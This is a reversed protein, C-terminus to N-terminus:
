SGQAEEVVENFRSDFQTAVDIPRPIQGAEVFLDALRQQADLVDGPLPFFRITGNGSSVLEEAREPALGYQDVFIAKTLADPHDEIWDFARVLRQLYDALAATRAPDDLADPSAILFNGRDTIADPVAAVHAEPHGALYLSILPETTVGADASGSELAANIQTIPVDVTTVEDASLGAAALGSLLAAEASTGRQYAVRRGALDAWGEIDPDNALLGGLGRDSAWGAVAVLDQGAAQAFILPTSAVFGADLAGGQFAQLMPPGGVFTAYSLEYPLDEDQGSISLVTKLYDLQDGIRLTTGAPISTPVTVPAATTTPGDDAAGARTSADSSCAALTAAAVVAALLPALLSRTRRSM